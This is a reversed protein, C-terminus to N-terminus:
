QEQLICVAEQDQRSRVASKKRRYPLVDMQWLKEVHSFLDTPSLTPTFLCQTVDRSHKIGQAPGQLTWGLHTRVTAPGGPPGLQVPEIPTILHTCDSGILLVPDVRNLSQLPLGTLHRYKKQLTSVPYTHEALGLQEATFASHIKFRKTPEAAPSITFSVAAGHLVQLQRVTHLALDEPKGELGLKKAAAHLLITRQSGDDLVAYAELTRNGNRIIVKSIKLLVKCDYSPRNVYSVESATNMLCSEVTAMAPAKGEARENVEHLVLLHKRNCMKCPAKLTCKVAPHGCGCHWCRNNSRIWSEKQERNLQNFNACSNVYHNTNNCYPCYTTRRDM